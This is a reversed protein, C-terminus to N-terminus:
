RLAEADAPSMLADRQLRTGPPEGGRQEKRRPQGGMNLRLDGGRRSIDFSSRALFDISFIVPMVVLRPANFVTTTVFRQDWDLGEWFLENTDDWADGAVSLPHFIVMDMTAAAMGVPVVLPYAIAQAAKDKPVLYQEVLNLAPTNDRNFVACGNCILLTLIILVAPIKRM